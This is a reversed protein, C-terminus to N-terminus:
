LQKLFEQPASIIVVPGVLYDVSIHKGVAIEWLTHAVPNFPLKKLKGEEDCFAICSTGDYKTFYPILELMGDNLAEKLIEYRVDNTTTIEKSITKGDHQIITM